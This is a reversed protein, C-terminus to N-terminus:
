PAVRELLLMFAEASLLGAAAGWRAEEAEAVPVLSADLATLARRKAERQATTEVFVHPAFREAPAHLSERTPYALLQRLGAGVPAHALALAMRLLQASEPCYSPAHPLYVLSPELQKWLESLDHLQLAGPPSLSLANWAARTARGEREAEVRLEVQAGAEKHRLLAGGAFLLLEVSSLGLALVTDSM